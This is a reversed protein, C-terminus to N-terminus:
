VDDPLCHLLITKARVPDPNLVKMHEASFIETKVSVFTLKSEFMTLTFTKLIQCRARPKGQKLADHWGGVSCCCFILQTRAAVKLCLM